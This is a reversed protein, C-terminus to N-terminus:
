ANGIKGKKRAYVYGGGLGALILVSLIGIKGAAPLNWLVTAFDGSSLPTREDEIKKLDDGDEGEMNGLPTEEDGITTLDEPPEVGEEEAAAAAAAVDGAGTPAAPAAAAPAAPTAAAPTDAAPATPAPTTGGAAAGAAAGAEAAEPSVPTYVFTFVNEAADSKLIGTLNYAQPLYGDIYLFAVVPRDGVNGYYTEAPALDTGDETQFQVTYSVSNGLIGYTVVYDRDEKIRYGEELVEANDKGSERIDKVYYKSEAGLQVVDRTSFPLPSDYPVEYSMVEGGGVLTSHAGSFLRVTYTNKEKGDEKACVDLSLSGAMCFVLLLVLAKVSSKVKRREKQCERQAYFVFLLLLIGTVCSVIVFPALTMEDGTKVIEGQRGPNPNPNTTTTTGATNLEVAFNMQLDALTNQYDNGQTDGDLAVELTIKGSEGKKLTDLFFYDELADTAQHLGEGAKSSGEGGVTDSDFLSTVEGDPATYSLKYTYAGGSTGANASRDELSYLVENTMYWDTVTDNENKLALTIIVNDGPQIGYIIDNLDSTKFNSSMKKDKTFTVSWDSKGYSTEAYATVNLSALLGIVLM